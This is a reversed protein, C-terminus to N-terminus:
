CYFDSTCCMRLRILKSYVFSRWSLIVIFTVIFYLSYIDACIYIKWNGWRNQRRLLPWLVILTRPMCVVAKPKRVIYALRQTQARVRNKDPRRWHRKSISQQRCSSHAFVRYSFCLNLWVKFISAVCFLLHLVNVVGLPRGDSKNREISACCRCCCCM